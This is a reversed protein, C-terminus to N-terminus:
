RIIVTKGQAYGQQLEAIDPYVDTPGGRQDPHWGQVCRSAPRVGFVGGEAFRPRTFAIVSDLDALTFLGGYYKCGERHVVLPAKEWSDRLFDSAQTPMLIRELDFGKEC